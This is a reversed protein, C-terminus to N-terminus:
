PTQLIAERVSPDSWGERLEPDAQIARQVVPDEVLERVLSLLPDAAPEPATTGTGQATSDGRPAAAARSPATAAATSPGSDHDVHPQGPAASRPAAVGSASSGAAHVSHDTAAAAGFATSPSGVALTTNTVSHGPPHGTSGSTGPHVGAPEASPPHGVAAHNGETTSGGAARAATSTSDDSTHMVHADAATVATDARLATETTSDPSDPETCGAAAVLGVVYLWRSQNRM